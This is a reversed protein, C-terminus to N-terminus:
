APQLVRTMGPPLARRGVLIIGAGIQRDWCEMPEIRSLKRAHPHLAADRRRHPISLPSPVELIRAGLTPALMPTM